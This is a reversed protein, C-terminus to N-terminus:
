FSSVLRPQVALGKILSPPPPLLFYIIIFQRVTVLTTLLIHLGRSGSVKAATRHCPYCSTVSSRAGRLQAQCEDNADLM